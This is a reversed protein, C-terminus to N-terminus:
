RTSVRKLGLTPISLALALAWLCLASTIELFFTKVGLNPLNEQYNLREGSFFTRLFKKALERANKLVVCFQDHGQGMKLLDFYLATTSALDSFKQSSAPNSSLALYKVKSALALSKLNLRRLRGRLRWRQYVTLM